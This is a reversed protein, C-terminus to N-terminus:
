LREDPLRQWCEAVSRDIQEPRPVTYGQRGRMLVLGEKRLWALCLYAQYSPVEQGGDGPLPFIDETTFLKSAAGCNSLRTALADVVRKPARHRYERRQRRSWGIKILEDKHRVFRPYAGRRKAESRRGKRRRKKNSKTSSEPSVPESRPLSQRLPSPPSLGDPGSDCRSPSGSEASAALSAIQKAWGAIQQVAEYDGSTAVESLIRQLESECSRLIQIAKGTPM